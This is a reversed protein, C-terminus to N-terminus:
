RSSARKFVRDDEGAKRSFQQVRIIDAVFLLCSGTRIALALSGGDPTIIGKAGRKGEKEKEDLGSLISKDKVPQQQM